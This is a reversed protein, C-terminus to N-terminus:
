GVFTMTEPFAIGFDIVLQEIAKWDDEWSKKVIRKKAVSSCWKRM